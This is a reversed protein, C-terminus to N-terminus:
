NRAKINIWIETEPKTVLGYRPEIFYDTEFAPTLQFNHILHAIVVLSEYYAFQHAPCKRPGIGFPSFTLQNRKKIIEPRFREPDFKDPEKFVNPDQLTVGLAQILPTNPPIRFGGIKLEKTEDIRAAIPVTASCRISEDIVQLLLSFKKIDADKLTGNAQKFVNAVEQAVEEQTEPHITLYYLTWTLLNGTSHFGGVVFALIDCMIEEDDASNALLTDLLPAEPVVDNDPSNRARRQASIVDAVKIKFATMNKQFVQGHAAGKEDATLDGNIVAEMDNMVSEYLKHFEMTNEHHKFYAGMQTSTLLRIALAMMYDNLPVHDDKPISKWNEVLELSIKNFTPLQKACHRPSFSESLLRHRSIGEQGNLTRLSRHGVLSELASFIIRPRDTLSVTEKLLKWRGLSVCFQPGYWFSAIPGFREHLDLLFEHFSGAQTIDPINGLKDDTADLGPVLCPKKAAPPLLYIMLAVLGVVVAGAFLVFAILM